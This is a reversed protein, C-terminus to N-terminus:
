PWRQSRLNDTGWRQVPDWHNCWQYLTVQEQRAKNGATLPHRSSVIHLHDRGRGWCFLSRRFLACGVPGTRRATLPYTKVARRYTKVMKLLDMKEVVHNEVLNLLVFKACRKSM